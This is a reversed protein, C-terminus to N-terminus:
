AFWMWTLEPDVPEGRLVKPRGLVWWPRIQMVEAWAKVAVRVSNGESVHLDYDHGAIVGGPRVKPIWAQLDNIVATLWHDADIYVFDLSHDPIEKAAALSDMKLFDCHYPRLLERAEDYAKISSHFITRGTKMNRYPCWRDVCTLHLNPIGACLALSYYGKYVGIEAGRTYGRSAFLAPLDNRIAGKIHIPLEADAPPPTAFYAALDM